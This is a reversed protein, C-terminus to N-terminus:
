REPLTFVSQVNDSASKASVALGPQTGILPKLAVRSPLPWVIALKRILLSVMLSTPKNLLNFPLPMTM